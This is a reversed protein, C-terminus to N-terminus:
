LRAVGQLVGASGGGMTAIQERAEPVFLADGDALLVNADLNPDRLLADADLIVSGSESERRSHVVAGADAGPAMGGAAAIADVVRAGSLLEYTGPRAVRGVVSVYIARSSIVVMDGPSLEPNDQASGAFLVRGEGIARKDAQDAQGAAYVTVNDLSARATAGGAAAIADLLKAGRQLQYVGPRAVEGVISVYNEPEESVLLVDGPELAINDVSEPADILRGLSAQVSEPIGDRMGNWMVTAKRADGRVGGAAAVADLLTMRGAGGAVSYSGPRIVDGMVLVQRHARPVYIVAGNQLPVDDSEHSCGRIWVLRGAPRLRLTIGAVDAM